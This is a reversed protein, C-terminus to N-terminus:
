EKRLAENYQELWVRCEYQVQEAREKLESWAKYLEPNEKMLEANFQILDATEALEWTWKNPEEKMFEEAEEKTAFKKKKNPNFLNYISFKQDDPTTPRMLRDLEPGSSMAGTPAGPAGVFGGDENLMDHYAEKYQENSM